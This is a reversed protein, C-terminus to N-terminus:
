ERRQALRATEVNVVPIIKLSFMLLCRAWTMAASVAWDALSVAKKLFNQTRWDDTHRPLLMSPNEERWVLILAPFMETLHQFVRLWVAITMQWYSQTGANRSLRELIHSASFSQIVLFAYPLSTLLMLAVRVTHENIQETQAKTDGGLGFAATVAPGIIATAVLMVAAPAIYTFFKELGASAIVVLWIAMAYGTMAAIRLMPEDPLWRTILHINVLPAALLIFFTLRLWWPMLRLLKYFM